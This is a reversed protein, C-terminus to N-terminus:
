ENEAAFIGDFCPGCFGSILLERDAISLYPMADQICTGAKWKAHDVALMEIIHQECCSICRIARHLKTLNYADGFETDVLQLGSPAWIKVHKGQARVQNCIGALSDACRNSIEGDIEVTYIM